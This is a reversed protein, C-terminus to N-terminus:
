CGGGQQKVLFALRRPRVPYHTDPFKTPAGRSQPNGLKAIAKGTPPDYWVTARTVTGRSKCGRYWKLENGGPGDHRGRTYTITIADQAHTESSRVPM